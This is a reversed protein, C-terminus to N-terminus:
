CRAMSEVLICLALEPEFRSTKIAIDAEVLKKYFVKLREVPHRRAQQMTKRLVFEHNIGLRAQIESQSYGAEIMDRALTIMRVQRNLMALIQGSNMGESLLKELETEAPGAKGEVASDVMKFISAEPLWAVLCGVDTISIPRGGAYAVLKDIENAMAWLEGGVQEALARVAEPAIASGRLTVQQRIWEMLQADKLLPFEQLVAETRLLKYLPNSRSVEGATLVVITSAPKRLLVDAFSQASDPSGATTKNKVNKTRGATKEFRELLGEVIVLRRSALFPSASVVLGVDGATTKRGDIAATNADLLDGAGLGNKLEQLAQNISYNDKGIFLHLM